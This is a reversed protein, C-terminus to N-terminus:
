FNINLILSLNIFLILKMIKPRFISFKNDLQNGITISELRPWLFKFNITFKCNKHHNKIM